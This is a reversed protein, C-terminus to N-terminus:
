KVKKITNRKTYLLYVSEILTELSYYVLFTMIIGAAQARFIFSLAFLVILSLIIKIGKVAMFFKAFAANTASSNVAAIVITYFLWFYLPVYLQAGMFYAPFFKSVLLEEVVALALIVATFISIQKLKNMCPIM